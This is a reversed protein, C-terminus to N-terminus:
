GAFVSAIYIRRRRGTGLNRRRGSACTAVRRGRHQRLGHRSEVEVRWACCKQERGPGSILPWVTNEVDNALRLGEAEDKFPLLCCEGLSTREQAVRM